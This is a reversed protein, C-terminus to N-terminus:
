PDYCGVDRIARVWCGPDRKPVCPKGNGMCNGNKSDYDDCKNKIEDLRSMKAVSNARDCQLRNIESSVANLEDRDMDQLSEIVAELLLDSGIGSM